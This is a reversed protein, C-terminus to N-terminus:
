WKKRFRPFTAVRSEITARLRKFDILDEFEMFATIMMLNTPDDMCLWFNDANTMSQSMM